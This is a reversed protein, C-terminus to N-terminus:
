SGGQEVELRERRVNVTSEEELGSKPQHSIYSSIYMHGPHVEQRAGMGLDSQSGKGLRM